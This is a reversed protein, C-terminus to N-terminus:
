VGSRTQRNQSILIVTSLFVAELSVTMTSFNFPFADSAGASWV